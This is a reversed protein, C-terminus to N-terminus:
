VGISQVFFVVNRIFVTTFATDANGLEVRIPHGVMSPTVDAPLVFNILVGASNRGVAIEVSEGLQGGSSTDFIRAFFVRGNNSEDFDVSVNIVIVYTGTRGITVTGNTLNTTANISVAPAAANYNTIPAWTGGTPITGARSVNIKIGGYGAIVAGIVPATTDLFDNFMNRLLAPTIAGVSNDPFSTDAQTKLEAITKPM